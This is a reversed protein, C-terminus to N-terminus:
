PLVTALGFDPCPPIKAEAVKCYKDAEDSYKNKYSLISLCCASDKGKGNCDNTKEMATACKVDNRYANCETTPRARELWQRYM